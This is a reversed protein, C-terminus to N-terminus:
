FAPGQQKGRRRGLSDSRERSRRLALSPEAGGPEPVQWPQRLGAPWLLPAGSDRCEGLPVLQNQPASLVKATVM